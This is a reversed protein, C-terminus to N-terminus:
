AGLRQTFRLYGAAFEDALEYHPMAGSQMVDISWNHRGSVRTKGRYDVFDGRVGHTMWVPLALAEYVTNIDASFMQFSLFCYPAHQAGPQHASLLSYRVLEPDVDRSGWTKRLFFTVSPRSTLMRFIPGGWPWRDFVGRVWAKGLTTGPPGYRQTRGEFGTPSILALSRWDGPRELAARAAFECSLSLAVADVKAGPYERGIEERMAHLADTMLRATYLRDGRESEGFGPLDLAYVPRTLRMREYLPAMEKASAAANVSHVLLLPTDHASHAPGADDRPGANDPRACYYAIRGTGAPRIERREGSVAAPLRAPLTAAQTPGSM